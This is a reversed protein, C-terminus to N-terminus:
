LGLNWNDHFFLVPHVFQPRVEGTAGDIAPKAQEAELRAIVDLARALDDKSAALMDALSAASYVPFAQELVALSAARVAEAGHIDKLSPPKGERCRLLVSLILYINIINHILGAPFFECVSDIAHLSQVPLQRRRPLAAPLSVMHGLVRSLRYTAVGNLTKTAILPVLCECPHASTRALDEDSM